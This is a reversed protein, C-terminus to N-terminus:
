GRPEGARGHRFLSVVGGFHVGGVLLSIASFVAFRLFEPHKLVQPIQPIILLGRLLYIVAATTVTTRVLPLRRIKGAASLAYLGFMAVIGAVVLCLGDYVIPREARLQVPGGFYRILDVSWWIASAQFVAFALSFLGGVVLLYNQRRVSASKALSTAAGSSSM